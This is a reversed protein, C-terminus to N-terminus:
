VRERCSARGIEVVESGLVLGGQELYWRRFERYDLKGDNNTDCLAFAQQATADALEAPTAAVRSRLTADRAFAVRFVATLYRTMERPSITGDGDLDFLSFALRVRQEADGGGRGVVM